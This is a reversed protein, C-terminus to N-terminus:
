STITRGNPALRPYYEEHESAAFQAMTDAVDDLHSQPPSDDEAPDAQLPAPLSVQRRELTRCEFRVYQLEKIDMTRDPEAVRQLEASCTTAVRRLAHVQNKSLEVGERLCGLTTKPWRSGPNEPKLGAIAEGIERKIDLLTRSFSAYAFTAVSNWSIFFQGASVTTPGYHSVITRITNPEIQM